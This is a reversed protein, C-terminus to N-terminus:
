NSLRELAGIIAEKIKADITSSGMPSLHPGLPTRTVPLSPEFGGIFRQKYPQLWDITDKAQVDGAFGTINVLHFRGGANQSAEKILRKTEEKDPVVKLVNAFLRALWEIPIANDLDALVPALLIMSQNTLSATEDPNFSGYPKIEEEIRARLEADSEDTSELISLLELLAIYKCGLSHGLWFYQGRPLTVDPNRVADIYTQYLSLGGYNLRKAEYHMIKFLDAQSDLLDLAVSWHRFTFRFPKAIVTYRREFITQMLERYFITPFTGFFAGGIFQVIGIPDPHLAVWDFKLPRFFFESSVSMDELNPYRLSVIGYWIYILFNVIQQLEVFEISYLELLTGLTWPGLVM